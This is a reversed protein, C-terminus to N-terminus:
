KGYYMGPSNYFREPERGFLMTMYGQMLRNKECERAYHLRKMFCPLDGPRRSLEECRIRAFDESPDSIIRPTLFIFMETSDDLLRTNSFLKGIGPLEGLFPIRDVEDRSAKRRLGGIIVTQGNPIRVSNEVHRTTVDPRAQEAGPQITQFTIATELSIYDYDEYYAGVDDPETIIHITPTVKITIGYQARTFSDKLTVGGVTDVQFIGTNLSIEEVVNITATTQNVAVVSPNANITIDDRSLLFKYAIDYAPFSSTKIRSLCFETIGQIVNRLTDNFTFSSQRTNSAKSGIRLLDLGFNTQKNVKKEFLLVDIQVMKKPVDLKRILEKLKPLANREVVMVIAGSKPEVLFNSRNQNPDSQKEFPINPQVPAPNVSYTGEQYFSDAYLQQTPVFPVEDVNVETLSVSQDVNQKGGEEEVAAIGARTRVMLQYVKELISALEETNAHKAYYTYVVSETADGVETEVQYIIEEAKRIEEETGILFIAKAIHALTIVKLGNTVVNSVRTEDGNTSTQIPEEVFHDFIATIVNAMEEADVRRLPIVRYQLKGSSAEVFDYLKLLERVEGIPGIILIDRGILQVDTTNRNVFKELFLWARRVESSEPSLVFSIRDSPPYIELGERQNTIFSIAGLNDKLIYLERLYPNLQRIGVGNQILIAELMQHWSERPIPINSNVSVPYTTIEENMLYVYSQSGYDIVLDGITTEPQHWLAYLEQSNNEDAVSRWSNELIKINDRIQNIEEIFLSWEEEDVGQQYLEEVEEYLSRLLMKQEKLERNIQILFKQMDETLDQSAGSTLSAKKEAITQSFLTCTPLVQFLILTTCIFAIPFQHLTNKYM